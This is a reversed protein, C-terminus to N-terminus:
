KQKSLVLAAKMSQYLRRQNIQRNLVSYKTKFPRTGRVYILVTTKSEITQKHNNTQKIM